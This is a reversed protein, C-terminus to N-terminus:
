DASMQMRRSEQDATGMQRTYLSGGCGGGRDAWGGGRSSGDHGGGNELVREVVGTELAVDLDGDAEEDVALPRGRDVLVGLGDRSHRTKHAPEETHTPQESDMDDDASPLPYRAQTQLPM